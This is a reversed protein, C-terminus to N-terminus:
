SRGGVAWLVPFPHALWALALLPISLARVRWPGDWFFALYWLCLGMSLYFNFFGMHFIFGYSLMAVCPAAFWWNRGAARFIFLLAGWGFVLVSAAVAVQQAANPGIRVLLWELVLDFLVNNSQPSIWLGPAVGQHIQSALWANYIHSSLDAAQIRSQWFCPMLLAASFLPIAIWKRLPSHRRTSLDASPSFDSGDVQLRSDLNAGNINSRHLM